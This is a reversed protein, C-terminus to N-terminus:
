RTDTETSSADGDTGHRGFLFHHDLRWLFPLAVVLAVLGPLWGFILAILGVAVVIAAGTRRASDSKAYPAFKVGSGEHSRLHDMARQNGRDFWDLLGRRAM